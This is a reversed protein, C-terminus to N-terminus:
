WVGPLLRHRVQQAYDRYGDLGEMLMRDELVTRLALAFLTLLAPIFACVSDLMLPTALNFIVAGLYGPHRVIAYPGGTAVTHGREKEIRVHGYFFKNSAMAWVSLLSGLVVLVLGAIQLTLSIAASWGFRMDLGSAVVTALPGWLGVVGALPRDWRATPAAELRSRELALEPNGRIVSLAILLQTGAFLVVYAWAMGWELRGSSVFLGAALIWGIISVSVLWRVTARTANPGLKPEDLSANADM